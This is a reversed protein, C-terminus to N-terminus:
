QIPHHSVVHERKTHFLALIKGYPFSCYRPLPLMGRTCQLLSPFHVRGRLSCGENYPSLFFIGCCCYWHRNSYDEAWERRGCNWSHSFLAKKLYTSLRNWLRMVFCKTTFTKLGTFNMIGLYTRLTFVKCCRPLIDVLPPSSHFSYHYM